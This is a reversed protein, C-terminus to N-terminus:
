RSTRRGRRRRLGAQSARGLMGLGLVVLFTVGARYPAARQRRGARAEASARANRFESTDPDPGHGEWQRVMESVSFARSQHHYVLGSLLTAIAAIPLWRRWVARRDCSYASDAM